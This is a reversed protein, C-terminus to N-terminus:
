TLHAFEKYEEFKEHIEKGDVPEGNKFWVLSWSVRYFGQGMLWSQFDNKPNVELIDSKKFAQKDSVESNSADMIPANQMLDLASGPTTYDPIEEIARQLYWKAKELDERFKLPDKKGARSVYKVVNGLCFDLGWAEIVKIAEYPNDKGGYYTPNNVKSM